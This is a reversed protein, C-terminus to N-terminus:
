FSIIMEIPEPFTFNRKFNEIEVQVKTMIIFNEFFFNKSNKKEFHSPTFQISLIVLNPLTLTLNVIM